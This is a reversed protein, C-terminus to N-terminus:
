QNASFMEDGEIRVTAGQASLTIRIQTLSECLGLIRTRASPCTESPIGSQHRFYVMRNM